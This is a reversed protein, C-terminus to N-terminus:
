GTSYVPMIVECYETGAKFMIPSVPRNIQLTCTTNMQRMAKACDLLFDSQIATKIEEGRTRQDAIVKCPIEVRLISGGAIAAEFLLKSDMDVLTIKITPPLEATMAEAVALLDGIALELIVKYEAPILNSYNPFERIPDVKAIALRWGDTTVLQSREADYHPM